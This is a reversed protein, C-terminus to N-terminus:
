ELVRNVAKRYFYQKREVGAELAREREVERMSELKEILCESYTGVEM